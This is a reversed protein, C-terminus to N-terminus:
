RPRDGHHYPAGRLITCARYLQELLLMRSMEHTLTMSSLRLRQPCRDLVADSLGWAGGLVFTIERQGEDTTKRLWQALQRSTRERGHEDLLVASADIKALLRAGEQEACDRPSRGRADKVEVVEVPVYRGLRKQFEACLAM